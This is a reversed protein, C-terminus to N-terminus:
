DSHQELWDELIPVPCNIHTGEWGGCMHCVLLKVAGNSRITVAKDLLEVAVEILEAESEEQESLVPEVVGGPIDEPTAANHFNSV